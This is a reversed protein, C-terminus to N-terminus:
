PNAARNCVPIATYCELIHKAWSLLQVQEDCGAPFMKAVDLMQDVIPLRDTKIPQPEPNDLRWRRLLADPALRWLPTTKYESM